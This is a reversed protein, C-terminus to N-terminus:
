SEEGEGPDASRLPERPLLFLRQFHTVAAEDNEEVALRKVETIPAHLVKHVVRRVTNRIMARGDEDLGPLKRFAAELEEKQVAGAWAVLSSILDSLDRNALFRHYLAVEEEVLRDAERAKRRREALGGEAVKQLDDIDYLYVGEIRSAEPAIDRPVALDILFLPKWRRSRMAAAIDSKELVLRPRATCSLVIDAEPLAPALSEWAVVEGDLRSALEEAHERTRNAVRVSRVGSEVFHTAVIRIMEGAGVLLVDKERLNEFISQALNFATYSVTVPGEGIGTESRVSKAVHFARQFVLNLPTSLLSADQAQFYADKIQGLIQPEGLIMSDLGCAVRFLHTLAERERHVYLGAGDSRSVERDELIAECLANVDVQDPADMYFETRNCTALLLAGSLHGLASLKTLISAREEEEYTLRERIEVPATKHNLGILVLQSM